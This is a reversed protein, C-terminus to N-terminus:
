FIQSPPDALVFKAGVTFIYLNKLRLILHPHFSHAESTGTFANKV